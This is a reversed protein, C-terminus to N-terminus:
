EMREPPVGVDYRDEDIAGPSARLSHGLL